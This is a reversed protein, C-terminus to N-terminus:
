VRDNACSMPVCSPKPPVVVPPRDIKVPAGVAPFLGNVVVPNGGAGLGPELVVEVVEPAPVVPTVMLLGVIVEVLIVGAEGAIVLRGSATFRPAPTGVLPSPKTCREGFKATSKKIDAASDLPTPLSSELGRTTVCFLSFAVTLCPTLIGM